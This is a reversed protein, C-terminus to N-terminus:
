LKLEDKLWLFIKVADSLLAESIREHPQSQTYAININVLVSIFSIILKSQIVTRKTWFYFIFEM